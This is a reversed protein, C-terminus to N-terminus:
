FLYIQSQQTDKKRRGHRNDREMEFYQISYQVTCLLSDMSPKEAQGDRRRGRRELMKMGGEEEEELGFSRVFSAVM